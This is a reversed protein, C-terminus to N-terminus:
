ADKPVSKKKLLSEVAEVVMDPTILDMCLRSKKSCKKEGHLSCPSCKVNACLVVNEPGTPAFGLKPHTPGFIAVVPVKFGEAIHMPGSDNTILCDCNQILGMLRSLPLGIAKTARSDPLGDAVKRISEEDISDGFLIIRLNEKQILSRYVQEFKEIDWKKTEWKAGPHVGIVIDDKKIGAELMFKNSFDIDNQGVFLTPAKKESEIQLKKFIGLYSELTSIPKTKLFKFHVMLFRSFWLKRYKIKIRSKILHRLFFSRLNSHLDILLDFNDSNLEKVLRVFGKIGKHKNKPDFQILTHIRPDNALLDAYPTKTLFSIQSQPFKAKLTELVPTTLIIDGLSSFRVVLIKEIKKQM